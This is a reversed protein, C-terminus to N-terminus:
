STVSSVKSQVWTNKSTVRTFNTVLKKVTIKVTIKVHMSRLLRMEHEEEEEEKAVRLM